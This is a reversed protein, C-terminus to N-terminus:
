WLSAQFNPNGGSFQRMSTMMAAKGTRPFPVEYDETNESQHMENGISKKGAEKVYSYCPM